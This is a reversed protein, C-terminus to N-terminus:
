SRGEERYNILVRNKSKEKYGPEYLQHALDFLISDPYYCNNRRDHLRRYFRELWDMPIHDGQCYVEGAKIEVVDLLMNDTNNWINLFWVWFEPTEVFCQAMDEDEISKQCYEIGSDLLINNFDNDSFQFLDKIRETALYKRNKAM